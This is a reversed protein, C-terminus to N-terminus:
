NTSSNKTKWRCSLGHSMLYKVNWVVMVIRNEFRRSYGVFDDSLVEKYTKVSQVACVFKIHSIKM